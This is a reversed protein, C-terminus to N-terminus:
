YTSNGLDLGYCHLKRYLTSRSIGLLAAAAKKNGDTEDLAALVAHTEAVEFRTLPRRATTLLIEPPVDVARITGTRSRAVLSDLVSLLQRVNGPWSLRQLIQVVEPAIAVRAGGTVRGRRELLAAALTAIDELRDRLPPVEVRTADFTDAQEGGGAATHTAMGIFLWGSRGADALVARLGRLVAPSLCQLDRVVLTGPEADRLHGRVGALWLAPGDIAATAAEAVILPASGRLERHIAAAIARKGVGPEGTLLVPVGKGATERAERCCQRWRPNRGALGALGRDRSRLVASRGPRTAETEGKPLLEVLAGIPAGGDSLPRIRLAVTRENPLVLDREAPQCASVAQGVMEWLLGHEVGALLRGAGANSIVIRENIAVVGHGACRAARLFHQLLHREAVARQLYLREEIELAAEEVLPLMLSSTKRVHCTVDLVGEVQRTVKNVVPVGVCTLESLSEAYHETGVVELPQHVEMVTGLGNTGIIDEGYGFGEAAQVADLQRRLDDEPVRRTVIRSTRDALIVACGCRGLRDALRDMVPGAARLLPSGSDFDPMFPLDARGPDVGYLASRRWSDRIVPRGVRQGTPGATATM